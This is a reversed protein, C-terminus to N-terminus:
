LPNQWVEKVTIHIEQNLIMIQRSIRSGPNSRGLLFWCFYENIIGFKM